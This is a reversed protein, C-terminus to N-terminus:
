FKQKCKNQSSLSNYRPKSELSGGYTTFQIELPPIQPAQIRATNKLANKTLHRKRARKANQKREIVM